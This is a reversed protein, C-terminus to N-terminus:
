DNLANLAKKIASHMRKYLTRSHYAVDHAVNEIGEREIYIRRIIEADLPQMHDLVEEVHKIDRYLSDRKRILQEEKDMLAYWGDTKGGMTQPTGPIRDPAPSSIGTMKVAVYRLETEVQEIKKKRYEYSRLDRKFQEVEDIINM